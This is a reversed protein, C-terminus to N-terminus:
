ERREKGCEDRHALLLALQAFEAGCGGCAFRVPPAAAREPAPRWDVRTWRRAPPPHPTTTM